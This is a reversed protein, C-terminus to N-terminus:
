DNLAKLVDPPYQKFGSVDAIQINTSGTLHIVGFDRKRIISWVNEIGVHSENTDLILNVVHMSNPHSIDISFSSRIVESEFIKGNFIEWDGHFQLKNHVLDVFAVKFDNKLYLWYPPHSTPCVNYGREKGITMIIEPTVKELALHWFHDSMGEPKGAEQWLRFAMDQTMRHPDMGLVTPTQMIPVYPYIYGADM